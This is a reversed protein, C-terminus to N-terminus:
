KKVNAADVDNPLLRLEPRQRHFEQWLESPPTFVGWWTPKGRREPASWFTVADDDGFMVRTWDYLGKAVLDKNPGIAADHDRFRGCLRRIIADEDAGLHGPVGFRACANPDCLCLNVIKTILAQKSPEAEDRLGRVRYEMRLCAVLWLLQHDIHHYQLGRRRGPKGQVKAAEIYRKAERKSGVAKIFGEAQLLLQADFNLVKKLSAFKREMDCGHRTSNGLTDSLRQFVVLIKEIGRSVLFAGL